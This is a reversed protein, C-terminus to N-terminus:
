ELVLCACEDGHLSQCVGCCSVTFIIEYDRFDIRAKRQFECEVISETGNRWTATQSRAFSDAISSTCIEFIPLHPNFM